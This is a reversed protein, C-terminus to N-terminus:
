GLLQGMVAPQGVRQAAEGMLRGVLLLLGLEGIFVVVDHESPSGQAAFAATPTLWFFPTALLLTGARPL